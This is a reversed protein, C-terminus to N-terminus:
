VGMCVMIFQAQSRYVVHFHFNFAIITANLPYKSLRRM